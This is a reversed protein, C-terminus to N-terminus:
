NLQDGPEITITITEPNGLDARKRATIWIGANLATTEEDYQSFFPNDFSKQVPDLTLIMQTRPEALKRQPSEIKVLPGEVGLAQEIYSWDCRSIEGSDSIVYWQNEPLGLYDSSKRTKLLFLLTQRGGTYQYFGPETPKVLKADTQQKTESM